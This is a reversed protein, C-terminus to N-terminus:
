ICLRARPIPMARGAAALAERNRALARDPYGQFLLILAVCSVVRTDPTSTGALHSRRIMSALAQEFHSMAPSFSGNYLLASVGLSRHGAAQAAADQQREALRLLEGAIDLAVHQQVLAPSACVAGLPGGPAAPDPGRRCLERARAYAEGEPAAWGKTTILAAGLAIQLDLEKQDRDPRNPLGTASGLGPTLQAAAEVMASRAMAQRAAKYWYDIAKEVLGAQTCHHALM